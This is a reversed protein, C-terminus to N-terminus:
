RKRVLSLGSLKGSLSTQLRAMRDASTLEVASVGASVTVGSLRVDALGSLRVHSANLRVRSGNAFKVLSLM